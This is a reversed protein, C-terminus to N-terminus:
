VRKSLNNSAQFKEITQKLIVAQSKAYELDGFNTKLQILKPQINEAVPCLGEKFGMETFVPELYNVSWAAYYKEGGLGLFVKRFDEWNVKATDLKLVYTWYSSVLGESIKQPTLWACGKVAEEYFKAIRIRMDVFMDAKEMQARAMAACVEPLRYNFGVMVHRKFEPHQIVDIDIKFSTQKATLTSYGLISFKRAREALIENNTVIMGGNGATLHKSREFSFIAMDGISGVTRSKYQAMFAEANDEIVKIGKEKAMEMIPDLDAPLGYLAVPIIAKTKSTIKRKIDQPDINFTEPDVDAFVPTAGVCLVAFAPAAFTIPPVVVEDGIGVGCAFLATHLASTGSNVGISFEVGVKKSFGTELKKNAIGKLGEDFAEKIYKIEQDGVRWFKRTSM